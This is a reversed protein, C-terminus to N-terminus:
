SLSHAPKANSGYQFNKLKFLIKRLYFMIIEWKQKVVAFLVRYSHLSRKTNCYCRTLQELLQLTYGYQYTGKRKTLTFLM